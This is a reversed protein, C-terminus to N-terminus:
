HEHSTETAEQALESSAPLEDTQPTDDLLGTAKNCDQCYKKTGGRFGAIVESEGDGQDSWTFCYRHSEVVKIYYGTHGGCNPCSGSFDLEPLTKTM